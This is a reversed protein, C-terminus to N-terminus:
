RLDHVLVSVQRHQAARGGVTAAVPPPIVLALAPPELDDQAVHETM